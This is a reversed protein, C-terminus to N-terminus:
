PSKLRKTKEKSYECKKKIYDHARKLRKKTQPDKAKKLSVRLRQEILNIIQSQRAHSKSKFDSRNLTNRIDELTRFRVPVTDEPNEDTYLRRKSGKPKKGTGIKPDSSENIFSDFSLIHQFKVLM